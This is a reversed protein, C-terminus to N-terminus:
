AASRSITNIEAPSMPPKASKEGTRPQIPEIFRRGITATSRIPRKM